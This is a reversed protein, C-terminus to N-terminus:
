KIIVKVSQEGIKVVAVSGPQMNTDLIARENQGITSGVFTGNANYVSVSTGNKINQITLVGDESQIQRTKSLPQKIDSPIGEEIFVFEKWGNTSKFKEITGLPVYLTANYFTKNSFTNTEINFPNEIRSIVEPIDCNWFTQQGIYTVSNPIEISTLGSCGSFAGQGISTVSNPIAVSTLGSCSQFASKGISTVSNGITISTLSSCLYFAYDGISTVSNPIVLDKIETNEDSYLHKAYTLPNSLNDIFEVGCWAAIDPVIVKKLKYCEDFARGGISTVSNPITVSALSECGHFAYGDISM